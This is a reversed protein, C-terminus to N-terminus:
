LSDAQFVLALQKEKRRNVHIQFSAVSTVCSRPVVPAAADRHQTPLSQTGPQPEQAMHSCVYLVPQPLLPTRPDWSQAEV